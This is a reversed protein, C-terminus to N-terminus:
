PRPEHPFDPPPHASFGIVQRWYRIKAEPAFVPFVLSKEEYLGFIHIKGRWPILLGRGLVRGTQVDTIESGMWRAVQMLLDRLRSRLPLSM